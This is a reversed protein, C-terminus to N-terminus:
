ASDYEPRELGATLKPVATPATFIASYPCAQIAFDPMQLDTLILLDIVRFPHERVAPRKLDGSIRGKVEGSYPV